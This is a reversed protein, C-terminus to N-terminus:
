GRWCLSWVLWLLDQYHFRLRCWIDDQHKKVRRRNRYCISGRGLRWDLSAGTYILPLLASALPRFFIIYGPCLRSSDTPSLIGFHSGAASLPSQARLSGHNLLGMWSSFYTSSHDSSSPDIHLLRDGDGVWRECAVLMLGKSFSTHSIFKKFLLTNKRENFDDNNNVINGRTYIYIHPCNYQLICCKLEVHLSQLLPDAKGM